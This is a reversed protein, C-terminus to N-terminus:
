IPATVVEQGVTWARTLDTAQLKRATSALSIYYASQEKDLRQVNLAARGILQLGQCLIAIKNVTTEHIRDRALNGVHYAWREGPEMELLHQKAGEFSSM